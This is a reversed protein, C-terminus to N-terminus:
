RSFEIRQSNLLFDVIPNTNRFPSVKNISLILYRKTKDYKM